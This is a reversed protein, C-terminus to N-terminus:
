IYAISILFISSRVIILSHIPTMMSMATISCYLAWFSPRVKLVQACCFSYLNQIAKKMMMMKISKISMLHVVEWADIVGDETSKGPESSCCADEEYSLDPPPYPEVSESFSDVADV